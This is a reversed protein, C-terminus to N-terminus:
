PQTIHSIKYGKNQFLAILSNEGLLHGAGVAIFAGGEQIYREIQPMWNKNRNYFLIEFQKERKKKDHFIAEALAKHDRAHYAEIMAHQEQAVKGPEQIVEKLDNITIAQDLIKAQKIVDELFELKKGKALAVGFLEQDMALGPSPVLKSLLISVALWPRYRKFTKEPFDAGILQMLKEWKRSGLMKNLTQNKPLLGLVIFQQSSVLRPDVEVVFTLSKHFKDLVIPELSEQAPIGLHITGLLYSTTGNAGEVQWLVPGQIPNEQPAADLHATTLPFILVLALIYAKNTKFLKKECKM